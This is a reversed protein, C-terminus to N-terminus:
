FTNIFINGILMGEGTYMYQILTYVARRNLEAPLVIYIMSNIPMPNNDFISSFYQFNFTFSQILFM